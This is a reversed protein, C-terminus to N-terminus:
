QRYTRRADHATNSVSSEPFWPSQPSKVAFSWGASKPLPPARDHTPYTLRGLGTEADVCLNVDFSAEVACVQWCTHARM